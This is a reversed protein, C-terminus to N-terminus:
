GVWAQGAQGVWATGRRGLRDRFESVQVRRASGRRGSWTGGQREGGQRKGGQRGLWEEHSRADGQWDEGARGEEASLRALGAM